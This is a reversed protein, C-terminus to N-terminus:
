IELYMKQWIELDKNQSNESVKGLFVSNITKKLKKAKIKMKKNKIQITIKMTMSNIMLKIKQLDKQM